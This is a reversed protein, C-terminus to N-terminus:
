WISDVRVLRRSEAFYKGTQGDEDYGKYHYKIIYAIIRKNQKM